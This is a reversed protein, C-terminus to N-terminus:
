LEVGVSVCGPLLGWRAISLLEMVTECGSADVEEEFLLQYTRSLYRTADDVFRDMEPETLYVDPRKAAWDVRKRDRYFTKIHDPNGDAKKRLV